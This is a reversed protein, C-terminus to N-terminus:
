RQISHCISCTVGDQDFGRKSAAGKTMFGGVLATPNHCGECHRAYEVGKTSMLLNVNKTYWPARFSNGHASQRWEHQAEQHCHGCYSASLVTKPDIFEGTDTTANSPLFAERPGFHYDYKAAVTESYAHRAAVADESAHATKGPLLGAVAALASAASIAWLLARLHM